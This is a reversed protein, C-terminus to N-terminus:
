SAKGLMAKQLAKPIETAVFRDRGYLYDEGSEDVVRLEGDAVTTPDAIVPYIKHMELSAEYDSNDICVVFRPSPVKVRKAKM